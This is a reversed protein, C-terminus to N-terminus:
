LTARKFLTSFTGTINFSIGNCIVNTSFINGSVRGPQVQGVQQVRGSCRVSGSNLFTSAPNSISFSSGTLVGSTADTGPDRTIRSNGVLLTMSGGENVNKGSSTIKIRFQGTFVGETETSGGGSSSGGGGCGALFLTILALWPLLKRAHICSMPDGSKCFLSIERPM